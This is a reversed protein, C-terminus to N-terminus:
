GRQRPSYLTLLGAGYAKERGIGCILAKQCLEPDAVKLVGEYTVLRMRVKRNESGKNFQYWQDRVIRCCNEEMM